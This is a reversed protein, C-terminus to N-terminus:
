VRRRGVIGVGHGRLPEAATPRFLVGGSPNAGENGHFAYLLSYQWSGGASPSLEFVVGCSQGGGGAGCSQGPALTNGGLKTTGYLNGKSDLVLPGSPTAGDACNTQSCFSYLVKETWSGGPSSPPSLEFVTGQGSAGGSATTGYLNGESDAIVAYAPGSGDVCTGGAPCFSYLVNEVYQAHLIAHPALFALIACSGVIRGSRMLLRRFPQDLVATRTNV